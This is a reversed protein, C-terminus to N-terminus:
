LVKHVNVVQCKTKLNFEYKSFLIKGKFDLTSYRKKVNLALYIPLPNQGLNIAQRQDSLKHPDPQALFVSSLLLAFSPFFCINSDNRDM